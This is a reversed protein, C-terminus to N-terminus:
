NDKKLLDLKETYFLFKDNTDINLEETEITEQYEM